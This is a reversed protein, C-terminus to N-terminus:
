PTFVEILFLPNRRIEAGILDAMRAADVLRATAAGVMGNRQIGDALLLPEVREYCRRLGPMHPYTPVVHERGAADIVRPKFCECCVTPAGNVNEVFHLMTDAAHTVGLFLIKGRCEILKSFPSGKGVSVSCREHGELMSAARCGLGALCHTPSLSRIVGPRKRFTEPLLGQDTPSTRVDFVCGNRLLVHESGKQFSPFFLTGTEGLMELLANIVADTGNEVYGLSKMSSHVLVTDGAGLGLRSLDAVIQKKTLTTKM